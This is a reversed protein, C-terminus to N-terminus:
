YHKHKQFSRVLFIIILAEIILLFYHIFFVKTKNDIINFQYEIYKYFLFSIVLGILYGLQKAIDVQSLIKDKKLLLTEMRVLYSGFIFTIQYGIYYGLAIQFNFSFFLFTIVVLFIISEVFLSIRYFYTINLIKSYLAAVIIMLIALFIGGQSFIIIELPKYVTVTIGISVGLFLSNLFKYIIFNKNNIRLNSSNM